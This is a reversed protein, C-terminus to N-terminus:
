IGGFSGRGVSCPGTCIRERIKTEVELGLIVEMVGTGIVM